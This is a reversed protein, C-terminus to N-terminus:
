RMRRLRISIPQRYRNLHGSTSAFTGLHVQALSPVLTRDPLARIGPRCGSALLASVSPGRPGAEARTRKLRQKQRGHRFSTELRDLPSGNGHLYQRVSLCRTKPDYPTNTQTTLLPRPLHVGFHVSSFHARFRSSLTTTTLSAGNKAVQDGITRTHYGRALSYGPVAFRQAWRGRRTKTVLSRTSRSRVTLHQRPSVKLRCSRDNSRHSTALRRVLVEM